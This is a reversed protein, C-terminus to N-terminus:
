CAYNRILSSIHLIELACFSRVRQAPLSQSGIRATSCTELVKVQRLACRSDSFHSAYAAYPWEACVPMVPMHGSRWEPLDGSRFYNVDNLSPGPTSYCSQSRNTYPSCPRSDSFSTVSAPPGDEFLAMNQSTQSSSVTQSSTCFNVANFDFSPPRRPQPTHFMTMTTLTFICTPRPVLCPASM